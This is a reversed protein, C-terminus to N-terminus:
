ILVLVTQPCSRVKKEEDKSVKKTPEELTFLGYHDPPSTVVQSRPERM